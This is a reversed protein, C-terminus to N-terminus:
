GHSVLGDSGLASVAWQSVNTSCITLAQKFSRLKAVDGEPVALFGVRWPNVGHHEAINAITVTRAALEPPIALSTAGTLEVILWLNASHAHELWRPVDSDTVYLVTATEPLKAPDTVTVAQAGRLVAAGRMLDVNGACALVGGRELLVQVAVFRAETVGCTIVVNGVNSTVGLTHLYTVVNERLPLIGPRDSYHTEGRELAAQAAQSIAAELQVASPDEDQFSAILTNARDALGIV